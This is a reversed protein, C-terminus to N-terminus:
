VKVARVILFRPNKPDTEKLRQYKEKEDEGVEADVVKPNFFSEIIFGAHELADKISEKNQHNFFTIEVDGPLTATHEKLTIGRDNTYENGTEPKLAWYSPNHTSFLLTGGPKLVRNIEKLLADWDNTYHLTLSSYVFDFEADGFSMCMMNMEKLEVSPYTNSAIGLLEKSIDIGVVRAPKRKLIEMLEDGGGVGISLVKKGELTEPLERNMAPKELYKHGVNTQMAEEWSQAM